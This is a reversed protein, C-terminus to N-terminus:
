KKIPFRDTIECKHDICKSVFYVCSRLPCDEDTECEHILDATIFYSFLSINSTWSLLNLVFQLIFIWLSYQSSHFLPKGGVKTAVFFISIFLIIAYVFKFIGAM